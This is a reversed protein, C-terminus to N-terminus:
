APCSRHISNSGPPLNRVGGSWRAIAPCACRPLLPVHSATAAPKALWGAERKLADIGGFATPDIIQIFVPTGGGTPNDARGTGCLGATLVEVILGLAFGKHGLEIGGLPLMSGPPRGFLALPDDTRNGNADLLWQGPLRRGEAGWRRFWGNAVPSTSIDILIPEDQTPYGFALPNAALQM